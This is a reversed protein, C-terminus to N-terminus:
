LNLGPILKVDIKHDSNFKTLKASISQIEREIETLVKDIKQKIKNSIKGKKIDEFAVRKKELNSKKYIYWFNSKGDAHKQLNVEQQALKLEILLDEEKSLKELEKELLDDDNKKFISILSSFASKISAEINNKTELLSSVSM